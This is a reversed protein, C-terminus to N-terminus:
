KETQIMIELALDLNIFALKLEVGAALDCIESLKCQLARRNQNNMAAAISQTVNTEITM